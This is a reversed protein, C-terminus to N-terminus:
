SYSQPRCFSSFSTVPLVPRNSSQSFRVASSREATSPFPLSVQAIRTDTTATPAPPIILLFGARELARIVDTPTCAPLRSM